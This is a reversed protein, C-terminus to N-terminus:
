TFFLWALSYKFAPPVKQIPTLSAYVRKRTEEIKELLVTIGHEVDVDNSEGFSRLEAVKDELEAIPREFELVARKM